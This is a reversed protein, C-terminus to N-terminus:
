HLGRGLKVRDICTKLCHDVLEVMESETKAQPALKPAKEDCEMTCLRKIAKEEAYNAERRQPPALVKTYIVAAIMSASVLAMLLLLLRLPM